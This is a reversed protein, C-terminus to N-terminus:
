GCPLSPPPPSRASGRASALAGVWGFGFFFKRSPFTFNQISLWFHSAWKLSVFKKKGGYGGVGDRFGFM